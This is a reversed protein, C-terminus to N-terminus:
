SLCMKSLIGLDWWARKFLPRKDRLRHPNKKGSFTNLHQKIKESGLFCSVNLCIVPNGGTFPGKGGKGAGATGRLWPRTCMHGAPPPSSGRPQSPPCRAPRRLRLLRQTEAGARGGREAVLHWCLFGCRLAALPFYNLFFILGVRWGDEGLFSFLLPFFNSWRRGQFM